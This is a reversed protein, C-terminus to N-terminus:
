EQEEVHEYLLEFSGTSLCDATAQTVGQYEESEEDVVTDFYPASVRIYLDRSELRFVVIFVDAPDKYIQHIFGYGEGYLQEAVESIYEDRFWVRLEQNRFSM